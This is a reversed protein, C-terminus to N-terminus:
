VHAQSSHLAASLRLILIKGLTADTQETMEEIQKQMNEDEAHEKEDDKFFKRLPLFELKGIEANLAEVQPNVGSRCLPRVNFATELQSSRDGSIILDLVTFGLAMRARNLLTKVVEDKNMSLQVVVDLLKKKKTEEESAELLVESKGEGEKMNLINATGDSDDCAMSLPLLLLLPMSPAYALCVAQLLLLFSLSHNGAKAAFGIIQRALIRFVEVKDEKSIAVSNNELLLLLVM